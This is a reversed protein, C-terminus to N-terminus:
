GAAVSTKATDGAASLRNREFFASLGQLDKETVKSAALREPSPDLGHRKMQCSCYPENYM